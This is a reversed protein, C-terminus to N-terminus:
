LKLEEFQIAVDLFGSTLDRSNNVEASTGGGRDIKKRASLAVLYNIFASGRGRGRRKMSKSVDGSRRKYCCEADVEYQLFSLEM